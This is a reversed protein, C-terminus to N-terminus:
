TKGKPQFQHRGASPGDDDHIPHQAGFGCHICAGWKAEADLDLLPYSFVVPCITGCQDCKAEPATDEKLVAFFRVLGAAVARVRPTLPLTRLGLEVCEPCVTRRQMM